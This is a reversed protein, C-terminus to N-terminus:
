VHRGRSSSVEATATGTFRNIWRSTPATWWTPSVALLMGGQLVDVVEILPQPVACGKNPVCCSGLVACGSTLVSCLRVSTLWVMLMCSFRLLLVRRLSTYGCGAVAAACCLVACCLAACCQVACRLVAQALAPCHKGQAMVSSNPVLGQM